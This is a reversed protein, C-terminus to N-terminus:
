LSVFNKHEQSVLLAASQKALFELEQTYHAELDSTRLPMGCIPCCCGLEKNGCLRIESFLINLITLKSFTPGLFLKKEFRNFTLIFSFVFINKKLKHKTIENPCSDDKIKLTNTQKKHKVNFHM